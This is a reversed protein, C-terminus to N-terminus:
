TDNILIEQQTDKVFQYSIDLKDLLKTIRIESGKMISSINNNTTFKQLYEIQPESLSMNYHKQIEDGLPTRFVNDTWLLYKNDAYCFQFNDKQQFLLNDLYFKKYFCLNPQNASQIIIHEYEVIINHFKLWTLVEIFNIYNGHPIFYVTYEHQKPLHQLWESDPNSNRDGIICIKM